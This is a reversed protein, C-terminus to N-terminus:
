KHYPEKRMIRFARYIQELLVVRALNHPMTIRGFSLQENAHRAVDDSVGNSGGIIFTLSGTGHLTLENIHDAFEVSDFQKASVALLIVHSREPIANLIGKGEKELSGSIGGAKAPDVDAIEKVTVSAYGSLRKLYERCAETWFKEKLKGVAIITINM